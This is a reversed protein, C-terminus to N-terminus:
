KSYEQPLWGEAEAQQLLKAFAAPASPADLTEDALAGKIRGLGQTHSTIHLHSRPCQTHVRRRSV